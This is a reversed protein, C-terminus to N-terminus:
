SKYEQNRLELNLVRKNNFNQKVSVWLWSLILSQLTWTPLLFPANLWEVLQRNLWIWAILDM